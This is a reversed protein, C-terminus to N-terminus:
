TFQQWFGNLHHLYLNIKRGKALYFIETNFRLFVLRILM